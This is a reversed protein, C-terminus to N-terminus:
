RAPAGEVLRRAAARVHRVAIGAQDMLEASPGSGPLGSVALHAIRPAKGAEVFAEM